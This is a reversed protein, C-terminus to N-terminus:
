FRTIYLGYSLQIDFRGQMHLSELSERKKKKKKKMKEKRENKEKIKKKNLGPGFMSISVVEAYKQSANEIYLTTM